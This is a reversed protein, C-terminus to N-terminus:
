QNAEVCSKQELLHDPDGYLLFGSGFSLPTSAICDVYILLWLMRHELDDECAAMNLFANSPASSVALASRAVAFIAYPSFPHHCECKSKTFQM